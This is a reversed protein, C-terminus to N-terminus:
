IEGLIVERVSLITGVVTFISGGIFLGYWCLFKSAPSMIEGLQDTSMYGPLILGLTGLCPYGVLGM